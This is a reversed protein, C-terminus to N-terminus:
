HPERHDLRRAFGNVRRGAGKILPSGHGFCATEFDEGALRAISEFEQRVDMTFSLSPLKIGFRQALLDGTMMLGRRKFLVCISGPTHGPTHLVRIGGAAPLEDGDKVIIDVKVPGTRLLPVLPTSASRLWDPRCPGPQPLTGEIYPVDGAHAIVAAGTIERLVALGGVHDPHHHTIIIHRIRSPSFGLRYIRRLIERGKGPYGADVLTLGDGDVVLYVNAGLDAQDWWGSLKYVHRIVEM